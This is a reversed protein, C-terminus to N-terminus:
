MFPTKIIRLQVGRYFFSVRDDLFIRVFLLWSYFLFVVVLLTSWLWCDNISSPLLDVTKISNTCNLAFTRFKPCFKKRLFLTNISILGWTLIQFSRYKIMYQPSTRVILSKITGYEVKRDCKITYMFYFTVLFCLMHGYFTRYYSNKRQIQNWM